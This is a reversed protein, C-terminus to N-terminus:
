VRTQMEHVQERRLAETLVHMHMSLAGYIDDASVMGALGGKDNLVPLRRVAHSRMTEIADFIDESEACTALQHTMIDSVTLADTDIGVAVVALVIDRDTLFGIPVREGNPRETVVLSGVHQKRMLEAAEHVSLDAEVSIVRHTCIEAIQM